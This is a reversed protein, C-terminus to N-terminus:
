MLVLILCGQAFCSKGKSIAVWITFTSSVELSFHLLCSFLGVPTGCLGYLYRERLNLKCTSIGASLNM